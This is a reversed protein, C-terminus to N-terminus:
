DAPSLSPLENQQRNILTDFNHKLFLRVQPSLGSALSEKSYTPTKYSGYWGFSRTLTQSNKMAAGYQWNNDELDRLMKLVGKTTSQKEPLHALLRIFNTTHKPGFCENLTKSIFELEHAMVPKNKEPLNAEAEMLDVIQWFKEKNMVM